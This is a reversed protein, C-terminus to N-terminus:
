DDIVKARSAREADSLSAGQTQLQKTLNDIEDSLSKLTAEKPAYKKELEGFNRQGENTQGVALQFAVVAIKAPGVQPAPTEAPAPSLGPSAPLQAVASLTFGSAALVFLPFTRKM